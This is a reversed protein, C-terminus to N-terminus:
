LITLNNFQTEVLSEFVYMQELPSEAKSNVVILSDFINNYYKQYIDPIDLEKKIKEKELFKM